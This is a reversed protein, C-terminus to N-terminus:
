VFADYWEPSILQQPPQPFIWDEFSPHVPYRADSATGSGYYFYYERDTLVDDFPRQVRALDRSPVLYGSTSSTIIKCIALATGHHVGNSDIPPLHFLVNDEDPYGPHRFLIFDRFLLQPSLPFSFVANARALLPPQPIDTMELSPLYKPPISISPHRPAPHHISTLANPNGPRDLIASGCSAKTVTWFVFGLSCALSSIRAALINPYNGSSVTNSM